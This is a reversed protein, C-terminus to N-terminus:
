ENRMKKQRKGNMSVASPATEEPADTKALVPKKDEKAQATSDTKLKGSAPVSRPPYSQAFQDLVGSNGTSDRGTIIDTSVWDATSLAPDETELFRLATATSDAALPVRPTFLKSTYAKTSACSAAVAVLLMLVAAQLLRITQM